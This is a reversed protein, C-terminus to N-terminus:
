YSELEKTQKAHLLTNLTRALEDPRYPKPVVGDFGYERYNAMVPDYSYGSSVIARAAPDLERLRIIAERGGMGDPVTLDFIVLSYPRGIRKATAYLQLAQGGEPTTDVDYGMLELMDSAVMRVDAEDDMILIRGAGRHAREEIKPVDPIIQSTVAPLFLHFTTGGDIVSEVTIAGEHRRVISHATALGLGSGTRRTIFYPEFIRALQQAPIGQGFDRISIRVCRGARLGTVMGRTLEVNAASIEIRGDPPSSLAAHTVLNRIALNFQGLDVEVPLLNPAIEFEGKVTFEHLAQTVTAKITEEIQTTARIPAGGKAFTLLQRSIERARLSAAEAQELRSRTKEPQDLHMRALSLNGVVATLVNNFDHAIGGALAGIAELHSNLVATDAEAPATKETAERFILYVATVRGNKTRPASGNDAVSVERGDKSILLLKGRLEPQQAEHLLAKIPEELLRHTDAHAIRLVALAPRGIAEYARWGTLHEATRNLFLVRGVTDVIVVADRILELVGSM